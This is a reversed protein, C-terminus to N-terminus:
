VTYDKFNNETEKEQRWIWGKSYGMKNAYEKITGNSRIIRWIFQAKYKGTKQLIILEDTTLESLKKGEYSKKIVEVLVGDVVEAKKDKAIFEYGCVACVRASAYNIADCEPCDKLPAASEKKEKPPKLLWIRDENWMGHRNHNMGFDLVTFHTKDKFTRSGRGCMQLWLPLSLTARNVIVVEISPCDFGTTLIGCNNLVLFSGIDFEKLIKKRDDKSTRSTISYSKIGADNFAKTMNDSHEINCNFVIAKKGNCKEIYKEIVGDYLKPKDFHEFLSNEDFEGKSKKVDDFSDQMQYAKYDCLFKLKILDSLTITEVIQTYYKYFHKGVPTATVGIIYSSPFLEIVKSFNGFHAEDIIILKPM